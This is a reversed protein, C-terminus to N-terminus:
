IREAAWAFMVVSICPKLNVWNWNKQSWTWTREFSNGPLTSMNILERGNWHKAVEQSSNNKFAFTHNVTVRLRFHFLTFVQNMNCLGERDVYHVTYVYYMYCVLSKMLFTSKTVQASLSLYINTMSHTYM